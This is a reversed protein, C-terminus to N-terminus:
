GVYIITFGFVWLGGGGFWRFVVRAHPVVSLCLSSEGFPLGMHARVCVIGRGLVSSIQGGVGASGRWHGGLSVRSHLVLRCSISSIRAVACFLQFLFHVNREWCQFRRSHPSGGRSQARLSPSSPSPCSSVQPLSMQTALPPPRAAHGHPKRSPLPLVLSSWHKFIRCSCFTRLYAFRAYKIFNLFIQGFHMQHAFPVHIKQFCSFRGFQGIIRGFSCHIRGFV